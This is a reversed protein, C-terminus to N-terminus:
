SCIFLFYLFGVTPPVPSSGARNEDISKLDMADVLEALRGLVVRYERVSYFRIIFDWCFEDLLFTTLVRFYIYIYISHATSINEANRGGRIVYM